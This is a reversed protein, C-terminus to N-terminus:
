EAASCGCSERCVLRTALTQHAPLPSSMSAKLLTDVARRGMELAPARVTTLSPAAYRATPIDDFGILALDDPVRLGVEHMGRLVGLAMSDNSAFLATPPAPLDRLRDVASRGAEQTFDGEIELAPDAVLGLDAVADRYGALREQADFNDGGGTLIAVREHDHEALHEVAAYTGSRNDFSLTRFRATDVSTSLLVIPLDDPVLTELFEIDLRPWLIILGEVRGLLSQIVSEAETEDTHSNSVLVHHGDESARQDLGRTVQAFFEGHMNPLLVGVTRTKQTRLSRAAENPLYDLAEVADLVQAKTEARVSDSENLVRSVTAVSVNAQEAVDRITTSM